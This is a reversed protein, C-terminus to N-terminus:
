YIYNSSLNNLKIPIKSIFNLNKNNILVVLKIIKILKSSKTIRKDYLLGSDVNYKSIFTISYKLNLKM